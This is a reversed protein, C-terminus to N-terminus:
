RLLAVCCCLEGQSSVIVGTITNVLIVRLRYTPKAHSSFVAIYRCLGSQPFAIPRSPTNRLVHALCIEPGDQCLGTSVLVALGINRDKSGAHVVRLHNGHLLSGIIPESFMLCDALIGIRLLQSLWWRRCVGADLNLIIPYLNRKHSGKTVDN